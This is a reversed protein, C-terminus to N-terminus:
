SRNRDVLVPEIHAVCLLGRFLIRGSRDFQYHGNSQELRDRRPVSLGCYLSRGFGGHRALQKSFPRSALTWDFAQRAIAGWGSDPRGFSPPMKDVTLDHDPPVRRTEFIWLLRFLNQLYCADDSGSNTCRSM